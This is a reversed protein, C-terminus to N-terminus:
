KKSSRVGLKITCGTEEHEGGAITVTVYEDVEATSGLAAIVKDDSRYHYQIVRPGVVEARGITALTSLIADPIRQGKLPPTYTLMVWRKEPMFFAGMSAGDATECKWWHQDQTLGISSMLRDFDAASSPEKQIVAAKVTFYM